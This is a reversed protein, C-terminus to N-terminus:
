KRCSLFAVESSVTKGDLKVSATSRLRNRLEDYKRKELIRRVWTAAYQTYPDDSSGGLIDTITRGGTSKEASRQSFEVKKLRVVDTIEYYVHMLVGNGDMKSDTWFHRPGLVDGVKVNKTLHPFREYISKGDFDPVAQADALIVPLWRARQDTHIPPLNLEKRIEDVGGGSAVVRAAKEAESGAKAGAQFFKVRVADIVLPHRADILSQYEAELEEQSISTIKKIDYYDTKFQYIAATYPLDKELMDIVLADASVYEELIEKAATSGAATYHRILEERLLLNEVVRERLLGDSQPSCRQDPDLFYLGGMSLMNDSIDDGNLTLSQARVTSVGFILSALLVCAIKM